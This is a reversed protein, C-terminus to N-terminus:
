KQTAAQTTAPKYHKVMVESLRQQIASEADASTPVRGATIDDATDNMAASLSTLLKIQDPILEPKTGSYDLLVLKWGSPTKHFKLPRSRESIKLTSEEGADTQQSKDISDADERSLAGAGIKDGSAGFKDHAADALRKGALIVDIFAGALHDQDQGDILLCDRLANSDANNMADYFSKATSKPSSLDVAAFAPSIFLAILPIWRLLKFSIRFSIM